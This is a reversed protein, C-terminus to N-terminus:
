QLKIYVNLTNMIQNRPLVVILLDASCDLPDGARIFVSLFYLGCETHQDNPEKTAGDCPPDASCDLAEGVRIFVSLFYLGCETHQDNPEKTAGDCPPDASCDLAEGVRIFVSLLVFWM